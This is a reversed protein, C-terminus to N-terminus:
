DQWIFFCLLANLLTARWPAGSRVALQQAAAQGKIRRQTYVCFFCKVAIARSAHVYYTSFKFCYFTPSDSAAPLSTGRENTPRM